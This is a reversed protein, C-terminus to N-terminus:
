SISALGAFLLIFIILIYFVIIAAAVICYILAGKGAMKASLPKTDKWVLYLILGAIPVFFGLFAWGISGDDIPAPSQYIPPQVPAQQQMGCNSCITAHNEIQAGCNRCYAM